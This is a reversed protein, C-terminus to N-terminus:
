CIVTNASCQNSVLNTFYYGDEGQMLRTDNCFRTIYLINSKLRVPNAKLVVFILAPLFEDASVPGGQCHQLVEVVSRCCRVICSLKEKPAKMSDMGAFLVNHILCLFLTM